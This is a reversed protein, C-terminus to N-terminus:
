EFWVKSIFKCIEVSLPFKAIFLDFNEPRVEFLSYCQFTLYFGTNYIKGLAGSFTKVRFDELTKPYADIQRLVDGITM